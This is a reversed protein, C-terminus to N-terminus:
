GLLGLCKLVASQAKALEGIEKGKSQQLKHLIADIDVVESEEELKTPEVVPSPTEDEAIVAGETTSPIKGTEVASEAQKEIQQLRRRKKEEQEAQLKAKKEALLKKADEKKKQKVTDTEDAAKKEADKKDKLDDAIVEKQKEALAKMKDAMDQAQEAALSTEQVGSIESKIEQGLQENLGSWTREQATDSEAEEKDAAEKATKQAIIKDLNRDQSTKMAEIDKKFEDQLEKTFEKKTQVGMSKGLQEIADKTGIFKINVGENNKGELTYLGANKVRQTALDANMCVEANVDCVSNPDLCAHDKDCPGNKSLECLYMAKEEITSPIGKEPIGASKLLETLQSDSLKILDEFNRGSYCEEEKDVPDFDYKLVPLPKEEEEEDPLYLESSIVTPLEFSTDDPKQVDDVVPEPVPAKVSSRLLSELADLTTKSGIYSRGNWNMNKIAGRTERVRKDAVDATLCVGAGADCTYGEDCMEDPPNCTGNQGLACLYEAMSERTVPIGKTVGADKLMEKLESRPLTVLYEYSVGGYCDGSIDDEPPPPKDRVAKLASIIEMRSQNERCPIQSQECLKLLGPVTNNELNIEDIEM